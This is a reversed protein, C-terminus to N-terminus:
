KHFDTKNAEIVSRIADAIDGAIHATDPKNMDIQEVRQTSLPQSQNETM